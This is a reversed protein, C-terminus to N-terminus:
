KQGGKRVNAMAQKLRGIKKEQLFILAQSMADVQDDHQRAPFGTIEEIFSDPGDVWSALEPSPLFVNGADWLPEVAHVRAVKGEKPEFPKIGSVEKKMANIVAHGNAKREVVKYRARPWKSTMSKIARCTDTFDMKARMQDLLYYVEGFMGWVQGVVYDSSEEDEFACDWSQIMMTFKTPYTHYFQVWASKIITGEAPTPNQQLQAEAGRSGLDKKIITVAKASFREPCLLEGEEERPDEFGISTYCRRKPEYEMPLMLHEYGGEKLMEGALDMDHLRQMIIIRASLEFDVLRSSMTKSWWISVEDLATQAVAMSKTVELPKLPDDVMQYDAHEGTVGGKPTVSQRFGGRDNAYRRATDEAPLIAFRDGWREQYWDSKILRRAKKADRQAITDGYAACIFKKRPDQSWVWTPWFV